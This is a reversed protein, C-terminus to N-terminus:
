GKDQNKGQNKRIYHESIFKNEEKLQKVDERTERIEIDHTITTKLLQEISSAMTRLDKQLGLTGEKLKIDIKKNENRLNKAESDIRKMNMEHEKVCLSLKNQSDEQEKRSKNISTVWNGAFFSVLGILSVLVFSLLNFEM